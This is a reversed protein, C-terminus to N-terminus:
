ANVPQSLDSVINYMVELILATISTDDWVIVLSKGNGGVALPLADASPQASAVLPIEFAANSTVAAAIRGIVEVTADNNVDSKFTVVGSSGGTCAPGSLKRLVIKYGKPPAAITYTMKDTTNVGANSECTLSCPSDGVVAANMAGNDNAM